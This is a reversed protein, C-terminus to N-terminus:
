KWIDDSESTNESMENAEIVQPAQENIAEESQEEAVFDNSNSFQGLEDEVPNKEELNENQINHANEVVNLVEIDEFDDSVDLVEINDFKDSDPLEEISVEPLDYLYDSAVTEESKQTLDIPANLWEDPDTEVVEKPQEENTDVNNSWADDIVLSETIGDNMINEQASTDGNVASALTANKDIKELAEEFTQPKAQKATQKPKSEKKSPKMIKKGLESNEAFYGVIAMIVIIVILVVWAINNILFEIM